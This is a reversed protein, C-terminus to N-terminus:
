KRCFDSISTKSGNASPGEGGNAAIVSAIWCGVRDIRAYQDVGKTYDPGGSVVAVIERTGDLYLAGGSDGHEAAVYGSALNSVVFPTGEEVRAELRESLVLQNDATLAGHARRGVLRAGFSRPVQAARNPYEDLRFAQDPSLVFLAVDSGDPASVVRKSLKTQKGNRAFPAIVTASGEACHGATLVVRPALVSGSCLGSPVNVHAAYPYDRASTTAGNVASASQASGEEATDGCGAAFIATLGCLVFSGRPMITDFM